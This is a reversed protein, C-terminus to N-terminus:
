QVQNYVKFLPLYMAIVIFGVMGGIFVIMVPEIISTLAKISPPSANRTSTPSRPWCRLRARRLVRRGLDHPQGDVPLDTVESLPESITGGRKVSDIVDHM